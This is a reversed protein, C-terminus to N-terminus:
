ITFTLTFSINLSLFQEMTQEM